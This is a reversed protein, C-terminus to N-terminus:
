YFFLNYETIMVMIIRFTSKLRLIQPNIVIAITSVNDFTGSINKIITEDFCFTGFGMSSRHGALINMLIESVRLDTRRPIRM